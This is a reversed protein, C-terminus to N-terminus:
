AKFDSELIAFTLVMVSLTNLFCMSCDITLNFIGIFSIIYFFLKIKFIM